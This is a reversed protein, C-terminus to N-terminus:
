ETGKEWKGTTLSPSVPNAVKVVQQWCTRLHFHWLKFTGVNEKTKKKKQHWGNTCKCKWGNRESINMNKHWKSPKFDHEFQWCREFWILSSSFFLTMIRTWCRTSIRSIPITSKSSLCLSLALSSSLVLAFSLSLSLSLCLWFLWEAELKRKRFTMGDSIHTQVRTGLTERCLGFDAANCNYSVFFFCCCYCCSFTCLSQMPTSTNIHPQCAHIRITVHLESKSAGSRTKSKPIGNGTPTIESPEHQKNATATALGVTKWHSLARWKMHM